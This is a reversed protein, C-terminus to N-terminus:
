DKVWELPKMIVRCEHNLIARNKFDDITDRGFVEEYTESIFTILFNLLIVVNFIIVLLWVLWVLLVMAYGSDPETDMREAWMDYQPTIMAGMSNQFNYLFYSWWSSLKSYIPDAGPVIKGGNKVFV